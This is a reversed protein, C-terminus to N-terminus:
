RLRDFEALFNTTSVIRGKWAIKKFVLTKYQRRQRMIEEEVLLAHNRVINRGRYRANSNWNLMIDSWNKAYSEVM